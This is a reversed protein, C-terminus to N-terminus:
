AVKQLLAGLDGRKRYQIMADDGRGIDKTRAHFADIDAQSPRDYVSFNVAQKPTEITNYKMASADFAQRRETEVMNELVLFHRYPIAIKQDRGVLIHDNGVCLPLPQKGGSLEDSSIIVTVKPDDRYHSSLGGTELDHVEAVIVTEKNVTEKVVAEEGEVQIETIGPFAARITKTLGVASAAFGIELNNAKAFAKLDNFRATEIPISKM